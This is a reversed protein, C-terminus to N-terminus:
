EQNRHYLYSRHVVIFFKVRGYIFFDHGLFAWFKNTKFALNSILLVWDISRSQFKKFFDFPKNSFPISKPHSSIKM